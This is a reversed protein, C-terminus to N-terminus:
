LEFGEKILYEKLKSRTRSLITKANTETVGCYKALEKVSDCFYYRGVFLNRETDNIGKLFENICEILLNLEAESETDNESSVVEDLESLSLTYETPIRRCRKSTRLKDISIRRTLKALYRSLTQPKQPPISNWAALYTDNVSEECDQKDRLINYAIKYLYKGYKKETEKIASENREFFLEVIKADLM